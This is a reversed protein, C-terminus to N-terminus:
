PAAGKTGNGSVSGRPRAVAYRGRGVRVLLQDRLMRHLTRRVADYRSHPLQLGRLVDFATLGETNGRMLDLVAQRDYPHDNVMEDYEHREDWKSRGTRWRRSKCYNCYSPDADYGVWDGECVACHHMYVQQVPRRAHQPAPPNLDILKTGVMPERDELPRLTAQNKVIFVSDNVRTNTLYNKQSRDVFVGQPGHGAEGSATCLLMVTLGHQLMPVPFSLVSFQVRSGDLKRLRMRGMAPKAFANYSEPEYVRTIDMGVLDRRRRGGLLQAAAENAFLIRRRHALIGVPWQGLWSLLTHHLHLSGLQISRNRMRM